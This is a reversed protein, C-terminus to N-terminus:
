DKRYRYGEFGGAALPIGPAWAPALSLLASLEAVTYDETDPAEAIIEDATVPILPQRKRTWGGNVAVELWVPNPM